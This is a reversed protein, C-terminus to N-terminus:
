GNANRVTDHRCLTTAEACNLAHKGRGEIPCRWPPIAAIRRSQIGRIGTTPRDASGGTIQRFPPPFRTLATSKKEAACLVFITPKTAGTGRHHIGWPPLLRNSAKQSRTPTGATGPAIIAHHNAEEVKAEKSRRVSSPVSSLLAFSLIGCPRFSVRTLYRSIYLVTNMTTSVLTPALHGIRAMRAPKASETDRLALAGVHTSFHVSILIHHAFSLSFLCDCYAGTM